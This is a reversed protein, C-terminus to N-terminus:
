SREAEAVLEGVARDSERDPRKLVSRPLRSRRDIVTTRSTVRRRSIDGSQSITWSPTSREFTLHVTASLELCADTEDCTWQTVRGNRGGNM